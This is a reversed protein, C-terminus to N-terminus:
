APHPQFSFKSWSKDEDVPLRFGGQLLQHSYGAKCTGGSRCHSMITSECAGGLFSNMADKEM